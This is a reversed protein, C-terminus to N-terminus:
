SKRLGLGGLALGFSPSEPWAWAPVDSPSVHLVINMAVKKVGVHVRSADSPQVAMVLIRASPSSTLVVKVMGKLNM